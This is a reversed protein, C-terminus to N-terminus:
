QQKANKRYMAPACGTEAKFVRHFTPQSAFGCKEAILSVPLDTKLLYEVAHSIRVTSLYAYFSRGTQEKFFHAFYSPSLAAAEAVRDLDLHVNDFDSFILQYAREMRQDALGSGPSDPVSCKPPRCDGQDRLYALALLYLKAQIALRFGKKQERYETFM